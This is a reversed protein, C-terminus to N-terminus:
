AAMAEPERSTASPTQRMENSPGEEQNIDRTAAQGLSAKELSDRELSDFHAVIVRHCVAGVLLGLPYCIVLALVARFLITVAGNHAALGSIISVVFASLAFCGAIAGGATARM